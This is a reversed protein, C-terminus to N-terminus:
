FDNLTAKSLVMGSADYLTATAMHESGNLKTYHVTDGSPIKGEAVKEGDIMLDYSYDLAASGSPFYIVLENVTTVGNMVQRNHDMTIQTDSTSNCTDIEDYLYPEPVNTLETGSVPDVFRYIEVEVQLSAPTCDAARKYNNKNFMVKQIESSNDKKYWSPWIDTKGNVSLTQIGSPRNPEDGSKWKGEQAYLNHHVNYMYDNVVVRTVNNSSNSLGSGNHNGNWVMTAVATSYSAMWLDKAVSSDSTTSTGTKTATWVGDVVFGAARGSAGFVLSRASADSLINSIEYAVEEDIAREGATDKWTEIVKGSADKVELVYSLPKYIGGRAFSAYANAHEVPKVTCGSGIAISLGGGAGGNPCYSLDGLAHATELAEEVGVIALAKVAAINLSNGLSERITLNGYFQGTYNRLACAGSYGACYISDINEDKLVSGPGYVTEGKLSFLPSYDLVPKITSGPELDATAANVEGYVPINWDISGVMAIVQATEVDVSALAVNDSGNSSLMKAGEAVAAEAMEQARYDLTTTIVFGGSRMYQMGYQAELQQKVEMVFHPAKMGSYQSSEPLIQDLIPVEKAEAAEEATIYGVEVMDDLVKHQRAILKENGAEYYPNLIAPNNPIAALLASEALNLDKASKGFYTQAASEIGNRRGGYPSENLYMTLIQEKSYMKELEISLILEKIKRAIGGRNASAAEDSFYLQKILQQTLTSGGQVGRGTVTSIAARVLGMLDVGPHTYFKKDEIAVTAWRVYQSIEDDNVVLRYDSDGKDEWLVVGNRDLYTNVTDSISLDNLQIEKLQSKYYVFLAGVAIIGLLVCAAFIKVIRKLGAKSFWYAKIREWRFHAFFRAPQEKPLPKLNNEKKVSKGGKKRTVLSSYVSMGGRKDRHSSSENAAKSM